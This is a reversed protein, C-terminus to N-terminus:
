SALASAAAPPAGVRALLEDCAAADVPPGVHFGQALDCGMGALQLRVDESEVGEGTTRLGLAAGLEVTSRVIAADAPHHAMGAVFSRDVKLEDVPLRRLQTLSSWGTGFDDLAVEIRMGRLAALARRAERVDTVLRSETVEVQLAGAATPWRTLLSAIRFPLDRERLCGASVNVSVGVGLGAAQWRAVQRVATELVADTLPGMLGSREALAVFRAPPLLGLRPHRWRVLAEVAYVRGDRLGVKPQYHVVLEGRGIGARLERALRGPLITPASAASGIRPLRAM